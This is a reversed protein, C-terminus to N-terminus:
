LFALQPIEYYKKYVPKVTEGKNWLEFHCNFHVPQKPTRSTEGPFVSHRIYLNNIYIIYIIYLM